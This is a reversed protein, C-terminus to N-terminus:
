KTFGLGVDLKVDKNESLEQLWGPIFDFGEPLLGIEGAVAAVKALYDKKLYFKSYNNEIELNLPISYYKDSEVLISLLKSADINSGLLPLLEAVVEKEVGIYVVKSDSSTYYHLDVFKSLNTEQSAGTEKFSINVKGDEQFEAKVYDIKKALGEGNVGYQALAGEIIAGMAAGNEGFEFDTIMDAVKVGAENTTTKLNWTGIIAAKENNDNDNCSTLGSFLGSVLTLTILLNKFKM